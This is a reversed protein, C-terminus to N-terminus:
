TREKGIEVYWFGLEIILCWKHCLCIGGPWLTIGLSFQWRGMEKEIYSGFVVQM